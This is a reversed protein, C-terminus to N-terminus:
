VTAVLDNDNLQTEPTKEAHIYMQLKRFQRLDRNAFTQFVAKGDM